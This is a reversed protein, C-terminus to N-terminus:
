AALHYTKKEYWSEGVPAVEAEVELPVIIWRWEEPLEEVMIKRAEIVYREVDDEHVDAIVSDHIQCIVKADLKIKRIRRIIRIL